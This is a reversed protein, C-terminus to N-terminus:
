VFATTLRSVVYMWSLLPVVRCIRQYVDCVVASGDYGGSPAVVGRLLLVSTGM